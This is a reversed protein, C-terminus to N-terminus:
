VWIVQNQVNKTTKWAAIIHSSLFEFKAYLNIMVLGLTHIIVGFSPMRLSAADRLVNVHASPVPVKREEATKSWPAFTWCLWESSHFHRSSSSCGNVAWQVKDPVVQTLQWWFPLVLRSKSSCSITLPLPMLQAIHLDAGQGLCMVM